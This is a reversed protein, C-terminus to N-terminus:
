EHPEAVMSKSHDGPSPRHSWLMSPTGDCAASPPRRPASVTTKWDTETTGDCYTSTLPERLGSTRGTPSPATTTSRSPCAM